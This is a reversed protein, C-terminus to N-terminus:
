ELEIITRQPMEVPSTKYAKSPWAANKLSHLLYKVIFQLLIYIQVLAPDLTRPEFFAEEDEVTMLKAGSCSYNDENIKCRVIWKVM